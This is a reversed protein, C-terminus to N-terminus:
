ATTSIWNSVRPDLKLYRYYIIRLYGLPYLRGAQNNTNPSKKGHYCQKASFLLM